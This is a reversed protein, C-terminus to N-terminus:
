QVFLPWFLKGIIFNTHKNSTASHTISRYVCEGFPEDKNSEIAAATSPSTSAQKEQARRTYTINPWITARCFLNERVRGHKSHPVHYHCYCHYPWRIFRVPHNANWKRYIHKKKRKQEYRRCCIYATYFTYKAVYVLIRHLIAIAYM